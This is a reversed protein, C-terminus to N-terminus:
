GSTTPSPRAAGAPPGAPRHSVPSPAIVRAPVNSPMSMVDLPLAIRGERYPLTVAMGDAELLLKAARLRRAAPDDRDLPGPELLREFLRVEAPEDLLIEDALRIPRGDYVIVFGPGRRYYLLGFRHV